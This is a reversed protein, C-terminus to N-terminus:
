PHPGEKLKVVVNGDRFGAGDHEITGDLARRDDDSLGRWKAIEHGEGRVVGIPSPGQMSGCSYGWQSLASCAQNLASFDEGTHRFFIINM